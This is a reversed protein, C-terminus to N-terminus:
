RNILLVLEVIIIIVIAGISFNIINSSISTKIKGMEFPYKTPLQQIPPPPPNDPPPAYYSVPGHTIILPADPKTFWALAAFIATPVFWIIFWFGLGITIGITAGLSAAGSTKTEALIGSVNMCGYFMGFACLGTWIIGLTKFFKYM